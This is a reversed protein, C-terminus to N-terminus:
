SILSLWGLWGLWGAVNRAEPFFRLLFVAKREDWVM